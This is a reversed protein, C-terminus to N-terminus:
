LIFYSTINISCYKGEIRLTLWDLSSPLLIDSVDSAGVHLSVNLYILHPMNWSIIQLTKCSCIELTLYRLNILANPEQFNLGSGLSLRNLRTLIELPITPLVTDYGRYVLSDKAALNNCYISLSRLQDLKHLESIILKLIVLDIDLLYLSRLRHFRELSFYSLFLKSQNPINSNNSLRLSIVQNPKVVQCVHDFDSKQILQFNFRHSSYTHIVDDVHNNLHFFSHLIEDTYFYDFITYLLEVPLQNFSSVSRNM